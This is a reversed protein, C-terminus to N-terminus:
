SKFVVDFYYESAYFSNPMKLFEVNLKYKESLQIFFAKSRWLGMTTESKNPPIKLNKSQFFKNRHELDRVAGIFMVKNSNSFFNNLVDSIMTDELYSSVGYLLCKNSISFKTYTYDDNAFGVEYTHKEKQFFEKAIEILYNSPDIGYVVCEKPAVLNTLAGNGCGIDVLCDDFQINLCNNIQKVIQQIQDESVEEGNITRRVQKWFENRNYQKARETYDIISM